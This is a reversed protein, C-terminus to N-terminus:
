MRRRRRRVVWPIGLFDREDDMKVEVVVEGYHLHSHLHLHLDKGMAWDVCNWEM